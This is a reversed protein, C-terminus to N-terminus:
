VDCQMSYMMSCLIFKCALQWICQMAHKWTHESTHELNCEFACEWGPQSYPGLQESHCVALRIAKREWTLLGSPGLYVGWYVELYMRLFVGPCVRLSVELQEWHYVGLQSPQVSALLSDLHQLTCESYAVCYVESYIRLYMVLCARMSDGLRVRHCVGRRSSQISGLLSELHEWACEWAHECTCEWNCKIVCEWGAHCYVGRYVSLFSGLVSKTHELTCRQTATLYAELWLWQYV